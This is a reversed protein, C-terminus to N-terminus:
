RFNVSSETYVRIGPVKFAGKQARVWSGIEKENPQVLAMLTDDALAAELLARVDTVEFKWATRESTGAAKPTVAQQTRMPIVPATAPREIIQEVMKEAIATHGKKELEAAQALKRDEEEKAIRAAEAQMAYAGIYLWIRNVATIREKFVGIKQACITKAKEVPALREDRKAIAQKHTAHASKIIPEFTDTIDKVLAHATRGIEALRNMDDLTVIQFAEAQSVLDDAKVKLPAATAPVLTLVVNEPQEVIQTQM